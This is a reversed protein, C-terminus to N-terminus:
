ECKFKPSPPKDVLCRKTGNTSFTVANVLTKECEFQLEPYTKGSVDCIRRLLNEVSDMSLDRNQSRVQRRFDETQGYAVIAFMLVNEPHPKLKRCIVCRDLQTHLSKSTTDVGTCKHCYIRRCAKCMLMDYQSVSLFCGSCYLHMEKTSLAVGPVLNELTYGFSM